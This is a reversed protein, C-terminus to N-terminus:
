KGAAMQNLFEMWQRTLVGDNPFQLGEFGEPVPQSGETETAPPAPDSGTAPGNRKPGAGLKAGGTIPPGETQPPAITRPRKQAPSKSFAGSPKGFAAPRDEAAHKETAGVLEDITARTIEEVSPRSISVPPKMQPTPRTQPLLDKAVGAFSVKEGRSAAGAEPSRRSFVSAPAAPPAVPAPAELSPIAAEAVVPEPEAVSVQLPELSLEPVAPTPEDVSVQLPEVSLEAIVPEPMAVPPELPEVRLEAVAPEPETVTPPLEIRPEVIAPERDTVIPLLSEVRLEAVAPEPETVSPAPLEVRPEATAPKPETVIPLLSEVRLEAVGPEPEIVPPPLEVRPELTAPEPETVIPQLSGVRLEAVAPEPEIVTPPLEVRPEVTAPEPETVIPQLSEVRLEAVAPQPDSVLPAAPLRDRAISDPADIVLGSEIELVSPAVLQADPADIATPIIEPEPTSPVVAPPADAMLDHVIAGMPPDPVLAATVTKAPEPEIIISFSEGGGNQAPPEAVVFPEVMTELTDLSQAMLEPVNVVADAVKDVSAIESSPSPSRSPKSAASRGAPPLPTEVSTRSSATIVQDAPRPPVARETRPASAVPKPEPRPPTRPVMRVVPAPERATAPRDAGLLKQLKLGTSRGNPTAAPGAGNPEPTAPAPAARRLRALSDFYMAPTGDVDLYRFEVCDVQAFGLQKIKRHFADPMRGVVLMVRPPHAASFQVAPYLRHIADPYELCWSYGDVAKLLMEEDAVLGVAILVLAGDADVAVIDISAQGLLLRSDLVTLGRELDDAHEVILAQLQAPDTLDRKKVVFSM